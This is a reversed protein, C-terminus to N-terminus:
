PNSELKILAQKLQEIERSQKIVMHLLQLVVRALAGIGGTPRHDKVIKEADKKIEELIKNM